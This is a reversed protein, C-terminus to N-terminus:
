DEEAEAMEDELALEELQIEVRCEMGGETENQSISTVRGFARLDIIDGVDCDPQLNLKALEKHTLCIRLGYPFRPRESVPMPCTADLSDEDDYEMSVMKTWPM